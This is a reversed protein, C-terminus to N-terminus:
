FKLTAGVLANFRQSPYYNWRHYKANTINNLRAFFSLNKLYRYEGGLNFDMVGKLLRPEEGAEFSKAYRKGLGYMDFTLMLKNNLLKYKASFETELCPRLWAYKEKSPEYYRYDIKLRLEIQEVPNYLIESELDFTNLDDIVATFHNQAKSFATDNVFFYENESSSFGVKLYYSFKTTISGKLGAYINLWSNTVPATLGPTIYPNENVMNYFNNIKLNGNIGVFPIFVDKLLTFRFEVKPYVKPHLTGNSNRYAAIRMGVELRISDNDMIFWPNIGAVLSNRLSDFTNNRSFYTFDFNGGFMNNDLEAEVKVANEKYKAAAPTKIKNGAYRYSAQLIYNPKNTLFYSSRVGIQADAFSYRKRIDTKDLHPDNDPHYGYNYTELGSIGLNGYMYSNRFFKQGFIEGKAEGYGGFKSKEDDMKIQGLSINYKALAGLAYKDNRLTNIVGELLPFPTANTGMAAKIFGTYLKEQPLPQLKAATIPTIDPHTDIRRSKIAYEFSPQIRVTDNLDPLVGIKQADTVSPEYPRILILEKNLNDQQAQVAITACWLIVTV